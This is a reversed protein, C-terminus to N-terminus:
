TSVGTKHQPMTMPRQQTPMQMGYIVGGTRGDIRVGGVINGNADLISINYTYGVRVPNGAVWGRGLSAKVANVSDGSTPTNIKGLTVGIILKGEYKVEVVWFTGRDRTDGVQFGKIIDNVMTKARDSTISLITSPRTVIVGNVGDVNVVGIKSNDSDLIPVSFVTRLLSPNGTRWGKARSDQVLQGAKDASSASINTVVISVVVGKDNELPVVWGGRSATVAGIKLSPIANDVMTKAKSADITLSSSEGRPPNAPPNSWMHGFPWNNFFRSFLAGNDPRAAVTFTVGAIVTLAIMTFALFTVRRKANM